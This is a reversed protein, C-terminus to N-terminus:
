KNEKMFNIIYRKGADTVYYYKQGLARSKEAFGKKVLDNWLPCSDIVYRNRYMNKSNNLGLAHMMKKVQDGSVFINNM